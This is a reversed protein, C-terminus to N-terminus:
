GLLGVPGVRLSGGSPKPQEPVPTDRVQLAGIAAQLQLMSEQLGNSLEEPWSTRQRRRM